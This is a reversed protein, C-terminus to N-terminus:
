ERRGFMDVATAAGVVVSGAWKVVCDIAGVLTGMDADAGGACECECGWGWSDAALRVRLLPVGSPAPRPRSLGVGSFLLEGALALPLM